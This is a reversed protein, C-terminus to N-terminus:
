PNAKRDILYTRPIFVNGTDVMVSDIQWGTCYADANHRDWYPTAPPDPRPARTIFTDAEARTYFQRGHATTDRYACASARWQFETSTFGYPSEPKPCPGYFTEITLWTVIYILKM